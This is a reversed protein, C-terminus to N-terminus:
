SSDSDSDSDDDSISDSSNSDDSSMGPSERQVDDDDDHHHHHVTERERTQRTREQMAATAMMANRHVEDSSSSDHVSNRRRNRRRTPAATNEGKAVVSEYISRGAQPSARSPGGKALAASVKAAAGGSKGAPSSVSPKPATATPGPPPSTPAKSMLRGDDRAAAMNRIDRWLVEKSPRSLRWAVEVLPKQNVVPEDSNTDASPWKALTGECPEFWTPLGASFASSATVHYVIEYLDNISVSCHKGNLKGGAMMSYLLPSGFQHYRPPSETTDSAALTKQISLSVSRFRLVETMTQDPAKSVSGDVAANKAWLLDKHDKALEWRLGLLDKSRMWDKVAGPAAKESPEPDSITVARTTPCHSAGEEQIVSDWSITSIVSLRDLYQDIAPENNSGEEPNTAKNIINGMISM